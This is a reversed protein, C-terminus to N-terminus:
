CSRCSGLVALTVAMALTIATCIWIGQCVYRHGVGYSMVLLALNRIKPSNKLVALGEAFTGKSKKKKPRAGAATARAAAPKLIKADIYAKSAFMAATMAMVTGILVRLSLLQTDGPFSTSLTHNVIRIFCGAAVLAINAGIAMFPYVAKAEDVTCVENALSRCAPGACVLVSACACFNSM